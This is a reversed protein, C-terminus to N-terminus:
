KEGSDTDVVVANYLTWNAAIIKALELSAVRHHEVTVKTGRPLERCVICQGSTCCDRMIKYRKM